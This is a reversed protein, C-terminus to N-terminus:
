RPAMTPEDEDEEDVAISTNYNAFRDGEGYLTADFQEGTQQGSAGGNTAQQQSAMSGSDHDVVM